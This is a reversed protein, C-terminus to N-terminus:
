ALRIHGVLDILAERAAVLERHEQVVRDDAVDLRQWKGSPIDFVLTRLWGLNDAKKDSGVLVLRKGAPDCALSQWSLGEVEPVAPLAKWTKEETHFTYLVSGGSLYYVTKTGPDYATQYYAHIGDKTPTTAAFESWTRAAPDFAQVFPADKSPGILLMQ